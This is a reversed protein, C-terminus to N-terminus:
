MSKALEELAEQIQKKTYGQGACASRIRGESTERSVDPSQNALIRAAYNLCENVTIDSITVVEGEVKKNRKSM